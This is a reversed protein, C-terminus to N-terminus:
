FIQSIHTKGELMEQSFPIYNSSYIQAASNATLYTGSIVNKLRFSKGYTPTAFNLNNKIEQIEWLDNINPEQTENLETNITIIHNDTNAV